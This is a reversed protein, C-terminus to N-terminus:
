TDQNNKIIKNLGKTTFPGSYATTVSIRNHGLRQAAQIRIMTEEDKSLQGVQGGKVLPTLGKTEFFDLIYEVRLWHGTVGADKKTLGHKSMTNSYKKLSEKLSLKPDMLSASTKGVFQNALIVAVKQLETEIPIIRSKGGKAGDVVYLSNDKVYLFPRVFLAEKRRLGFAQQMILQIWVYSNDQKVENLKQGIDVGNDTWTKVHAAAYTRKVSNPNDFYQGIDEIMGNKGIWRCFVRLHTIYTQITAASLNDQEYKHCIFEIHRLKINRPSVALGNKRLDTFFKFIYKARDEQTKFSAVKGNVRINNNQDILQQLEFKWDTKITM